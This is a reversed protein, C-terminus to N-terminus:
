ELHAFRRIEARRSGNPYERDYEEAFRRANAMDGIHSAAEAQRLLADEALTSDPWSARVKGFMSMAEQTRGLGGLTRGLTFAALPARADRPHERVVRQLYPLAESPHDSLRAVDAAVLLDEVTDGALAPHRSLVAYAGRYDHGAVRSRYVQRPQAQPGLLQGQERDSTQVQATPPFTGSEGAAVFAEEGNWSVRVKGRTVEVWAGEARPEVVFETGVVTVTVLGAHVEFARKPNPVVSYRAAGRVVDVSVHTPTQEVVRVEASAPDLAITSGEHLTIASPPTAQMPATPAIALPHSRHQELGFGVGVLAIAVAATAGRAAWKRRKLRLNVRGLLRETRTENWDLRLKSMDPTKSEFNM